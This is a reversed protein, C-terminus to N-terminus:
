LPFKVEEGKLSKKVLSFAWAGLAILTVVGMLTGMIGQVQMAQYQTPSYVYYEESYPSM